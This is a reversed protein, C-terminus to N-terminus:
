LPVEERVGKLAQPGRDEVVFLGAVLRQTTGSILVTDPDAAAQVRAAM